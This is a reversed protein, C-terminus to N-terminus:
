RTVRVSAAESLIRASVDETAHAGNM